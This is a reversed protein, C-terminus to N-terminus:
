PEGDTIIVDSSMHLSVLDTLVMSLKSVMEFTNRWSAVPLSSGEVMATENVAADTAKAFPVLSPVRVSDKSPAEEVQVTVSSLHM